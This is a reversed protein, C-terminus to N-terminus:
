LRRAILTAISGLTRVSALEYDPIEVDFTSEVVTLLDMAQMSDIQLSAYLDDGATLADARAGFRRKAIALLKETIEDHTM